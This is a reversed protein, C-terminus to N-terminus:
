GDDEDDDDRPDDMEDGSNSNSAGEVPLSSMLKDYHEDVFPRHFSEEVSGLRSRRDSYICDKNNVAIHDDEINDMDENSEDPRTSSTRRAPTSVSIIDDDYGPNSSDEEDDRALMLRKGSIIREIQDLVAEVM